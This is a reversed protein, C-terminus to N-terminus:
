NLFLSASSFYELVSTTYNLPVNSPPYGGPYPGGNDPTRQTDEGGCCAL